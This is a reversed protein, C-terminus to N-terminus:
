HFSLTRQGIKLDSLTRLSLRAVSLLWKSLWVSSFPYGSIKLQFVSLPDSNVGGLVWLMM